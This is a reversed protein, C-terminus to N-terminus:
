CFKCPRGASKPPVMDGLYVIWVWEFLELARTHVDADDSRKDVVQVIGIIDGNNVAQKDVAHLEQSLLAILGVMLRDVVCAGSNAFEDSTTHQPTEVFVM